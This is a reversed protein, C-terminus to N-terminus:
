TDIDPVGAATHQGLSHNRGFSETSELVEGIMMKAAPVAAAGGMDISATPTAAFASPSAKTCTKGAATQCTDDPAINCVIGDFGGCSRRISLKGTQTSDYATRCTADTAM